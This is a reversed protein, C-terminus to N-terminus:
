KKRKRLEYSLETVEGLDKDDKEKKMNVEKIKNSQKYEKNWYPSNCKPCIKPYKNTRPIWKHYCRKCFLFPLNLTNM